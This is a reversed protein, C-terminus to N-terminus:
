PRSVDAIAAAVRGIRDESLGAINIRGDGIAYVGHVQRLRSVAEPAIGLLSFMGRQAAIFDFRESNTERRLAEALQGRLRNIRTRMAYLEAMWDARLADDSLVTTVIAAAPHPAFSYTLRNITALAGDVRAAADASPAAVLAAGARDRYLGFSKSCSVAVMVEPLRSVMARVGALDADLGDALGHYALDILPVWGAREADRALLSWQEPSLDAGTPNHCCAHLIVVDGKAAGALGARMEEFLVAGTARDYYPHMGHALGLHQVLPLHNAWTPDGMWVTLDPKAMRAMKLLSHIAGTGGVTQSGALHAGTEGLVLRQMAAIFGADGIFRNYSKSAENAINHAEAAKVARMVPTLGASDRYVGVGLDIKDPRPDAAYAAVMAFIADQPPRPLDSFM